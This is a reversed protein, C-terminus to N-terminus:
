VHNHSSHVCVPFHYSNIISYHQCVCLSVQFMSQLSDVSCLNLLHFMYVSLIIVKRRAQQMIYLTPLTPWTLLKYCLLTITHNLWGPQQKFYIYNSTILCLNIVFGLTITTLYGSYFSGCNMTCCNIYTNDGLSWTLVGRYSMWWYTSIEKCLPFCVVQM